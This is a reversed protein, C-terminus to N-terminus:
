DPLEAEVGEVLWDMSLLEEGSMEAGASVRENGDQDNLPGTFITFITKEGAEFAAVEAEIM